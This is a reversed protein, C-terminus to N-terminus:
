LKGTRKVAEAKLVPSKRFCCGGIPVAYNISFYAETTAHHFKRRTLLAKQLNDSIIVGLLSRWDSRRLPM